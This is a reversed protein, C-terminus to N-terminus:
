ILTKSIISKLRETPPQRTRAKWLSTSAVSRSGKPFYLSSNSFYPACDSVRNRVRRTAVVGAHIDRHHLPHEIRSVHRPLPQDAHPVPGSFKKDPRWVLTVGHALRRHQSLERRLPGSRETRALSAYATACSAQLSTWPLQALPRSSATVLPM